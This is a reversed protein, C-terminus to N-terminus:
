FFHLLQLPPIASATGDPAATHLPANPQPPVLTDRPPLTGHAAYRGPRSSGTASRSLPHGYQPFGANPRAPLASRRCKKLLDLEMRLLYNERELRSKEIRLAEEATRPTQSWPWRPFICAGNRSGQTPSPLPTDDDYLVDSLFPLLIMRMRGALCEQILYEKEALDMEIRKGM